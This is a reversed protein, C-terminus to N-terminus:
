GASSDDGNIAKVYEQWMYALSGDTYWGNEQTRGRKEDNDAPIYTLKQFAESSNVQTEFQSINATYEEYSMSEMQNWIQSSLSELKTMADRNYDNVYDKLAYTVPIYSMLNQEKATKWYDLGVGYDPYTMYINGTEYINMKYEDSLKVIIDSNEEDYKWHTGEAGYQLITRLKTDTNLMTIIEMSRPVSKTFTSVAFVNELYDSSKGEPRKFVNIYYDDEYKKVEDATCTVYGVGFEGVDGTSVYNKEKFKKYLGYNKTYNNISFVNDFSVGEIKTDYTVRSALVSFTDQDKTSWFRYYSPSYDGYVPTVDTHYKAVDEIFTECESLSTLKDPDLYEEAVLRKNVLFYTFEGVEHNNPIGYLTGDLTAATLFDPFIYTNLVKSNGTLEENLESLLFNESYYNFDSEGRVLFIDLQNKEVNTYGTAGRVVLSLDGDMNPNEYATTEDVLTEGNKAAEIEAKRRDIAQKDEDQVRKQIMLLRDKIVQDYQSTPIAYLKVATDFESQTVANIAEEVAYIAEETTDDSTPVWLTLTMSSRDVATNTGDGTTDTQSNNSVDECGAFMGCTVVAAICLLICVLKRKM